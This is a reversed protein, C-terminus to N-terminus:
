ESEIPMSALVSRGSVTLQVGPHPMVRLTLLGLENLSNTVSANLGLRKVVPVNGNRYLSEHKGIVRLAKAQTDTLCEHVRDVLVKAVAAGLATPRVGWYQATGEGELQDALLGKKILAKLSAESRGSVLPVYGQHHRYGPSRRAVDWLALGQQRPLREAVTQVETDTPAAPALRTFLEDGILCRIEIVVEDPDTKLERAQREHEAVLAVIKGLVEDAPITHLDTM